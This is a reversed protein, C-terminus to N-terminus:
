LNINNIWNILFIFCFLGEATFRKRLAELSQRTVRVLVDVIKRSYYKRMEGVAGRVVEQMAKAMGGNLLIHPKEFCEWVLSWDSQQQTSSSEAETLKDADEFFEENVKPDIQAKKVLELIEEVAEEVMLSKNQLELAASRCANDIENCFHDIEWPPDDIEPLTHLQVSQM